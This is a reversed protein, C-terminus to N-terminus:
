NALLILGFAIILIAGCTRGMRLLSADNGGFLPDGSASRLVLKPFAVLLGGIGVGIWAGNIPM